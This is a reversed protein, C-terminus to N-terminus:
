GAIGKVLLINEIDRLPSVLDSLRWNFVSCFAANEVSIDGGNTKQLLVIYKYFYRSTSILLRRLKLLRHFHNIYKILFSYCILKIDGVSLSDLSTMQM